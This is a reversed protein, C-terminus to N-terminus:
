NLSFRWHAPLASVSSNVAPFSTPTSTLRIAWVSKELLKVAEERAKAVPKGQVAVPGEM